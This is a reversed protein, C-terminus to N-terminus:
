KEAKKKGKLFFIGILVVAVAGVCFVGYKGINRETRKTDEAKTDSSVASSDASVAATAAQNSLTEKEQTDQKSEGEAVLETSYDNSSEKTNENVIEEASDLEEQIEAEPAEITGDDLFTYGEEEMEKLDNISYSGGYDKSYKIYAKMLNDTGVYIVKTNEDDTVKNRVTIEYIGEDTYSELDSSIQSERLDLGSASLVKRKISLDLYRSRALDLKFGNDTYSTTLEGGSQLDMPYVMCNSNRISFKFYIRYGYQKTPKPVKWVLPSSDEIIYDLAVEYDGEEFLQVKTDATTTGAAALYNTYTNTRTENEYNTFRITLAGQKFSQENVGLGKDGGKEDSYISLKTNGELANIDKQNLRFWLTVKDGVNKLFIPNEKKNEDLTYYHANGSFGNIYFQGIQCGRNRDESDIVTSDSYEKNVGANVPECKFEFKPTDTAKASKANEAENVIYFHYVELHECYSYQEKSVPGLKREGSKEKTQYAVTVRYYCGNVLQNQVTEYFVEGASLKSSSFANTQIENVTWNEGDFSSEVIITGLGAKEGLVTGNVEKSSDEVLEVEKDKSLLSDDYTYCFGIESTDEGEMDTEGTANFSSIGKEFEAEELEGSLSFKGYTNAESAQKKEMENINFGKNKEDATYVDAEVSLEKEEACTSVPRSFLIGSAIVVGGLIGAIGFKKKSMM